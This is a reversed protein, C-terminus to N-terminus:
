PLFLTSDGFEHWLYDGHEVAARYARGVLAPGAVAELLLLHSAEPAHLGTVLGTVARSPRDPGLVLDTWGHAPHVTGDPDAATELARVVTTGVAVVRGGAARTSGVLRATSAPVTFREPMPPEYKEPSSVGAHLVLPAVLVGRAMLRILLRETFPRGASAMEASGPQLAYVTQHDGLPYSGALYGYGIPRGHRTLFEEAARGPHTRARWLRPVVADPDPYPAILEVRVADALLLVDGPRVGRDPGDPLRPEIVWTDDDLTTSVHVVTPAGDVRRADLAAPLTASTNVVLLDGPRLHDGLDAFRHHSVGDPGAVLLRVGDRALGRREPPATAERDPPLLFRTAPAIM